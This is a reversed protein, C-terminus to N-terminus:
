IEVLQMAEESGQLRLMLSTLHREPLPMMGGTGLLAVDLM